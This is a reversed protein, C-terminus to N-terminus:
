IVELHIQRNLSTYRIAIFTKPNSIIFEVM